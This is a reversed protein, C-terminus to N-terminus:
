PVAKYGCDYCQKDTGCFNGGCEPCAWKKKEQILWQKAGMKKIELLNNIPSINDNEIHRKDLKKLNECPFDNCEFCFDVHQNRLLTCDKKVWVCTKNQARCGKCGDKLNKEKLLGKARALYHRCTGCYFGCPGILALEQLNNPETTKM